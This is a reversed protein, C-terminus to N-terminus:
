GQDLLGTRAAEIAAEARSSVGLKQYINKIHGHVTHKSLGLEAATAVISRGRGILALVDRERVTLGAHREPARFTGLVRRAIPASLPPHGRLIGKLLVILEAEGEHKLLYGDAGARLASWLHADDEFITTVVVTPRLSLNTLAPMLEVGSGDPLGLDLLILDVRHEELVCRADALTPAAVIAIGPFAGDVVRRMWVLADALDEVILASRPQRM